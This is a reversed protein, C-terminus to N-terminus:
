LIIMYKSHKYSSFINEPFFNNIAQINESIHLNWIEFHLHFSTLGPIQVVKNRIKCSNCKLSNPFVDVLSCINVIFIYKRLLHNNPITQLTKTYNIIGPNVDVWKCKSIQFRWIESFICDIFLKKKSVYKWWVFMSFIFYDQLPSISKLTQTLQIQTSMHSKQPKINKTIEQWVGKRTLWTPKIGVINILIPTHQM